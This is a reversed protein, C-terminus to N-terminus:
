NGQAIRSRWSIQDGGAQGVPRIEEHRLLGGSNAARAMLAFTVLSLVLARDM